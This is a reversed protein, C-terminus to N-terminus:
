NKREDESLSSSTYIEWALEGLVEAPLLEVLSSSFPVDKNNDDRMNIWGRLGNSTAIRVGEPTMRFSSDDLRTIQQRVAIENFGNLPQLLYITANPDDREAELKYNYQGLKKLITAM